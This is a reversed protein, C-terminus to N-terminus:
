GVESIDNEYAGLWWEKHDAPTLGFKTQLFWSLRQVADDVDEGLSEKFEAVASMLDLGEPGEYIGTIRYDSYEGKSFVYIM